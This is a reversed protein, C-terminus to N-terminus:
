PIENNYVVEVFKGNYDYKLLENIITEQDEYSSQNYYWNLIYIGDIGAYIGMITFNQDEYSKDIVIFEEESGDTLNLRSIINDGRKTFYLYDNFILFNSSDVSYTGERSYLPTIDIMDKGSLNCSYFRSESQFYILDNENSLSGINYYDSTRDVYVADFSILYNITNTDVDFTILYPSGGIFVTNENANSANIEITNNDRAVGSDYGIDVFTETGDLAVRHMINKTDSTDTSYYALTASTFYYFADKCFVPVSANAKYYTNSQSILYDTTAKTPKDSFFKSSDASYIEEFKEDEDLYKTIVVDDLERKSNAIKFTVYLDDQIVYFGTPYGNGINNFSVELEKGETEIHITDPPKIGSKPLLGKYYATYNETQVFWNFQGLYESEYKINTPVNGQTQIYSNYLSLDEESLETNQNSNKLANFIFYGIVLVILIAIVILLYKIYPKKRRSLEETRENAM